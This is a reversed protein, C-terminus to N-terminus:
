GRKPLLPFDDGEFPMLADQRIPFSAGSQKRMREAILKGSPALVADPAAWRSIYRRVPQMYPNGYAGHICLSNFILCDGPDMTWRMIDYQDREADIDPMPEPSSGDPNSIDTQAADFEPQFKEEYFQKHWLHSGRVIELSAGEPTPDLPVWIAFSLGLIGWDQHWPTRTLTGPYKAIWSDFVFRAQASGVCDAAIQSINSGQLFEDFDPTHSRVWFDMVYGGLDGPRTFRTFYESPNSLNTQVAKKLYEIWDHDIVQRLCVAGDENFAELDRPRLQVPSREVTDAAIEPM